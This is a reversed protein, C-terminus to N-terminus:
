PQQQEHLSELLQLTCIAQASTCLRHSRTAVADLQRTLSGESGKRLDYTVVKHDYHISWKCEPKRAEYTADIRIKIQTGYFDAVLNVVGNDLSPSATAKLNVGLVFLLWDVDHIVLDTLVDSHPKGIVRRTISIYKPQQPHRALEECMSLAVDNFREPQSVFVAGQHQVRHQEVLQADRVCAALPKEVLVVADTMAGLAYRGHTQTPSAIIVLDAGDIAEASSSAVGISDLPLGNFNPDFVRHFTFAEHEKLAAYYRQGMRGFGIISTRLKKGSM